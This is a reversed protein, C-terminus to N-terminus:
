GFIDYPVFTSVYVDGRIGDHCDLSPLISERQVLWVTLVFTSILKSFDISLMIRFMMRENASGDGRSDSSAQMDVAPKTIESMIVASKARTATAIATEHQSIAYLRWGFVAPGSGCGGSNGLGRNVM